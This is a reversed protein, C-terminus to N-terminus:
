VRKTIGCMSNPKPTSSSWINPELHNISSSYLIANQTDYM